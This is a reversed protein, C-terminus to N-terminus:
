VHLCTTCTERREWTCQAPRHQNFGDFLTVWLRPTGGRWIRNIEAWRLNHHVFQSSCNCCYQRGLQRKVYKQVVVGKIIIKNDDHLVIFFRGAALLWWLKAASRRLVFLIQCTKISKRTSSHTSHYRSWLLLAESDTEIQERLEITTLRVSKQGRMSLVFRFSQYRHNLQLRGGGCFLNGASM